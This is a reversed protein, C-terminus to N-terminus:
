RLIVRRRTESRSQSPSHTKSRENLLWKATCLSREVGNCGIQREFADFGRQKSISKAIDFHGSSTKPTSKAITSGL